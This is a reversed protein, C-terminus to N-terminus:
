RDHDEGGDGEGLKRRAQRVLVVILGLTMALIGLLLWPIRGEGVTRTVTDAGVVFLVTGPLMCLWSWLLYTRFPM